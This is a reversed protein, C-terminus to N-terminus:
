ETEGARRKRALVTVYDLANLDVRPKLEAELTGAESGEFFAGAVTGVLLSEPVAKELGSTMAIWGPSAASGSSFLIIRVRGRGAGQVACVERDELSAGSPGLRVSLYCGPSSLSLVLSAREGVRAVLGAVAEGVVVADGSSVGDASGVDITFTDLTADPGLMIVRSPIISVEPVEARSVGLDRLRQNLSAIEADKQRLRDLLENDISAPPAPHVDMEGGEPVRSLRAVSGHLLLRWSHFSGDPLLFLAVGLAFLILAPLFPVKM